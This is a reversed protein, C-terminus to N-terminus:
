TVIFSVSETSSEGSAFDKAVVQVQYTGDAGTLAWAFSISKWSGGSLTGVNFNKATQFTGNPPAVNFQFTVPGPNTDTASANWTVVSGIPQPSHLMPTLTVAVKAVATPSFTSLIVFPLCWRCNRISVAKEKRM